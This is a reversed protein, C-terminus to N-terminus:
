MWVRSLNHDTTIWLHHFIGTLHQLRTTEFLVATALTAVDGRFVVPLWRFITFFEPLEPSLNPVWWSRIRVIPCPYLTANSLEEIHGITLM